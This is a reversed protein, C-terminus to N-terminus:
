ISCFGRFNSYVKNKAMIVFGWQFVFIQQEEDKFARFLLVLVGQCVIKTMREETREGGGGERVQESEFVCMVRRLGREM